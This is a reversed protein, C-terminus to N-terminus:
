QMAGDKEGEQEGVAKVVLVVRNLEPNFGLAKVTVGRKLMAETVFPKPLCLYYSSGQRQLKYKRKQM